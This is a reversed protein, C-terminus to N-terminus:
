GRARRYSRLLVIGGAPSWLTAPLRSGARPGLILVAPGNYGASSPGPLLLGRERSLGDAHPAVPAVAVPAVPVHAVTNTTEM